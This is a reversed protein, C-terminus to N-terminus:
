EAVITLAFADSWVAGAGGTPKFTLAIRHVGATTVTHTTAHDHSSVVSGAAEIHRRLSGIPLQSSATTVATGNTTYRLVSQSGGGVSYGGFGDASVRFKQGVPLSVGSSVELVVAEVNSNINQQSAKTIRGLQTGPEIRWADVYVYGINAALDWARDGEVPTVIADLETRNRVYITGGVVGAFKYTQTITSGAISVAGAPTSVQAIEIAGAPLPQIAPSGTTVGFIPVARPATEGGPTTLAEAETPDTARVWLRDVRTGSGPAADITWATAASDNAIQAAGYTMSYPAGGRKLNATFPRAAVDWGGNGYAIGAALVTLPDPFIGERPFIASQNKRIDVANPYAKDIFHPRTLPM